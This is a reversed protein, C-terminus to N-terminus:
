INKHGLLLYWEKQAEVSEEWTWVKGKKWYEVDSVMLQLGEDFDTKSCWGLGHSIKTTDARTEFPEGPREPLRRVDCEKIGLCELIYNVSVSAGSGVNFVENEVESEAASLFAEAVDTVYVFDRKQKGDGVVVVPQGNFKQALITNFLGGYGGSLCMRPGFVNFLRLSVFPLGYIRSWFLVYQEALYKTLAYPYMPNIRCDESTPVENPIGYCSGSAAYIFRKAKLDRALELINLTGTVNVHHYIEPNKISPVISAKGALHFVWDVTQNGFMNKLSDNIDCELLDAGFPINGSNGSSFNDLIIVEHGRRLLLSALHSGVFGAGGTVIARM